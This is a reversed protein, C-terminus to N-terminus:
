ARPFVPPTAGGAGPIALAGTAPASVSIPAPAPSIVERLGRAVAEANAGLLVTAHDAAITVVQVGGLIHRDWGYCPGADRYLYEVKETRFLLASGAWEKPQYQRAARDFSQTMHLDRAQLPVAEGRARCEEIDHLYKKVRAANRQRAIADGVYGFGEERFRDFRSRMTMRRVPMQPHFTDLLALVKVKHGSATLQRAMEFAVIGGGSYGGLLYPGEPYRARVEELYAAAMEEITEFPPTVGDVGRAQLGLFPRAEGMARALDRFHLVNGGAGHVCFFPIEGPAGPQITVLASPPVSGPAPSPASATNGSALGPLSKKGEPTAGQEDPVGLRDRLLSACHAITPAEFLTALPLDVGYKKGIRHFMRVAILSQGGLEFFDDHIGVEQVGLLDRWIEALEHELHSRPPAFTASLTPRGFLPAGGADTRAEPRSRLSASDRDLREVWAGLAVTCAVVQPSIPTAMMRGLADIGEAPTMGVRVAAELSKDQVHAFSSKAASSRGANALQSAASVRRMTFGQVSVVLEHAEDYIDVDFVATGKSGAGRLRVHSTARAPLPRRLLVRGYSFPVYFDEAPKFGAVLAQAGGVAMDLVAPHLRFADLDAAFERPLALELLAEGRGLRIAEICAWRPGFDMFAQVLQHDAVAVERPFRERPRGLDAKPAELPAVCAFHGRAFTEETSAGYLVFAGEGAGEVRVHLVRSADGEVAFPALFVVDRLELSKGAEPGRARHLDISARAIELFGTGPILASGGRVVHESLVWHESVRLRSRLLTSGAPSEIRELLLPHSATTATPASRQNADSGGATPASDKAGSTATSALMGVGQWGNWDISLTRRRPRRGARDLAFADLFANAATYDAQGPLGLIASVSSFVVFLEPDDDDLLADLVLAGLVKTDIVASEALLPRLAVLEDRLQGAAHFVGNIRGFREHVRAIVQRMAGPDTVDAAAVMVEAGRARMARVRRIKRSTEDDPGHESFWAEEDNPLGSRGVLVIKAEHIGALQEAVELGLGGLGGTVLWAGEETTWKQPQTADRLRVGDFREIWRDAGRLALDAGTPESELEGVIPDVLAQEEARGRPPVVDLSSCVLQPYERPLVRRAGLLVAKEPDLATDGPLSQMGSTVIDLRLEDADAAFAKALFLLSYYDRALDRRYAELAAGAFRTRRYTRRRRPGFSWLHVVRRPALGLRRLERALAEFDSASAPDVTYTLPDKAAFMRGESVSVVRDEARSRLREVVRRALGSGDTLVLWATAERAALPVSAPARKWSPAYFWDGVDPRKELEAGSEKPAAAADPEIWYRQREFPYTPLRVRRREEAAFLKAPDLDAGCAWLRGLAGLLFAVDSAQEQPHRLTTAIAAPKTPQQRAFSSLTRGPGVELLVPEGAALTRIGDHFRVTERLHRVWYGPNTAEADTIWTGTLNSVFPIRPASLKLTACFAEFEALIGDILASHAAIPLHVRTMDVDRLRLRAELEAIGAAPGSAVCLAPANVAALSVGEPLLARLEQEALAVSLMAGEPMKEFLRGRLSVLAIADKLSVVGALCAAAYEGASHGIMRAPVVGWSALLQAVAYETAFLAPLALSPAELRVNADPAERAPALLLARISAALEPVHDLCTDIAERYVTQASYLEAGMGAYQAGGGPFLFAVDPVKSTAHHTVIRKPDNAELARAADSADSAVLVRRHAFAERGLLTTYSVDALSADPNARLHAALAQAAHELATETRASVALLRPKTEDGAGKEAAVPAEQLLLHVNTGGAGLATVGAIRPRGAPPSWERLTDNVFFPSDPLDARPNAKRYHLSPPIQRHGLSLVTKIFGCIGAAEGAHGINSKVSGLACFQRRETTERFAETLAKVEIPDGILTGTGHAEVYSVDEAAVGAIALAEAIVSAQGRVSPALYGVKDAGDNNAASGLVVALIRDGDRLADDLRKLLVCGVASAMVTGAADADFARCHGDPSLIEGERHIYGRDQDPYVTAGGALAMDCEGNLLSQCAVHIALLSSSCASQVSLSPGRLDLEYSVRTALFNPDNGTHRVLWAGVTEMVERNPLLNKM